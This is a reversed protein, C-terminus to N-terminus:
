VQAPLSRVKEVSTVEEFAVAQSMSHAYSLWCVHTDFVYVQGAVPVKIKSLLGASMKFVLGSSAPVSFQKRM